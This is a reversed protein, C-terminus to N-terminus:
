DVPLEMTLPYKERFGSTTVVNEVVVKQIIDYLALRKQVYRLIPFLVNEIEAREKTSCNLGYFKM